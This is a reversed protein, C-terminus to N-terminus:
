RCATPTATMTLPITFAFPTVPARRADGGNDELVSHEVCCHGGVPHSPVSTAPLGRAVRREACELCGTYLDGREM